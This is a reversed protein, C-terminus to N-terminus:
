SGIVFGVNDIAVNTAIDGDEAYSFRLTRESGSFRHLTAAPVRVSIKEYAGNPIQNSSATFLTVPEGSGVAPVLQVTLQDDQDEDTSFRKAYFTFWGSTGEALAPFRLTSELRNTSALMGGLRAVMGEDVAQTDLTFRAPPTRTTSAPDPIATWNAVHTRDAYGNELTGNLVLNQQNACRQVDMANDRTDTWGVQDWAHVTALLEKSCLSSNDLNPFRREAALITANRAERFNARSTVHRPGLMADYWVRMASRIGMGNTLEPVGIRIDTTATPRQGGRSALFFWMNAIGSNNHVGCRDTGSEGRMCGRYARDAYASRSYGEPTHRSASNHRDLSPNFFYRGGDQRGAAALYSNTTYGVTWQESSIIWDATSAKYRGQTNAYWEVSEGMIDSTAENLAGSEGFYELGSSFETFGHTLEHAVVNLDRSLDGMAIRGDRLVYPPLYYMQHVGHGAGSAWFANGIDCWAVSGAYLFFSIYVNSILPSGLGDYSRAGFQTRYFAEAWGTNQYTDLVLPDNWWGRMLPEFNTETYINAPASTEDEELICQGGWDNVTQQTPSMRHIRPLRAVVSGDELDVLVDDVELGNAGAYQEQRIETLHAKGSEDVRVTYRIGNEPKEQFAIHDAQNELRIEPYFRGHIATVFKDDMTVSLEGGSVSVSKYLQQLRVITEKGDDRIDRVRLADDAGMRFEKYFKAIAAKAEESADAYSRPQSQGLLIWSPTKQENYVIESTTKGTEGAVSANPISFCALLPLFILNRFLM